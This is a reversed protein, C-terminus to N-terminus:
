HEEDISEQEEHFVWALTPRELDIVDEEPNM